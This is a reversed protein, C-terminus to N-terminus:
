ALKSVGPGPTAKGVLYKYQPLDPWYGVTRYAVQEELVCNGDAGKASNKPIWEYCGLSAPGEGASPARINTPKGDAFTGYAHLDYTTVNDKGAPIGYTNEGFSEPGTVACPSFPGSGCLDNPQVEDPIFAATCNPSGGVESLSTSCSGWNDRAEQRVLEGINGQVPWPGEEVIMPVGKGPSHNWWERKGPGELINKTANEPVYRDKGMDIFGQASTRTGFVRDLFPNFVDIPRVSSQQAKGDPNLSGSM